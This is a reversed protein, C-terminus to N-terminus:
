QSICAATAILEYRSSFIFLHFAFLFFFNFVSINLDGLSRGENIENDDKYYSNVHESEVSQLNEPDSEPEYDNALNDYDSDKDSDNTPVSNRTIKTSVPPKPTDATPLIEDVTPIRHSPRKFPFLRREM